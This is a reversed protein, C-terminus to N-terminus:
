CIIMGAPQWHIPNSGNSEGASVVITPAVTTLIAATRVYCRITCLNMLITMIMLILMMMKRIHHTVLRRQPMLHFALSMDITMTKQLSKKWQNQLCYLSLLSSLLFDGDDSGGGIDDGACMM